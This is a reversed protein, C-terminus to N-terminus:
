KEWMNYAAREEPDAARVKPDSDLYAYRRAYGANNRVAAQYESKAKYAKGTEFYARALSIRLRSNDPSLNVAKEYMTSAERFKKQLMYVNGLNAFAPARMPQAIAAKSFYSLADELKGFKANLVGLSNLAQYNNKDADLEVLLRKAQDDFGVTKLQDMDLAYLMNIRDRGPVSVSSGSGIDAPPFKAWSTATELAEFSGRMGKYRNVSQAGEKWAALFSKGSMTVEVPVWVTGNMTHVLSRDATVDTYSNEPVETDFMMFIHGPTTVVATKIGISELMTSFLVTLDDCDGAKKRLTERAFMVYDLSEAGLKGFGTNPDTAYSIGAAGMTDFLILAEQVKKNFGPLMKQKYLSLANRAFGSTVEERPTIFSGIHATNNWTITNRSHVTANKTEIYSYTGKASTYYARMKVPLERTDSMELIAKDIMLPLEVEVSQGPALTKLTQSKTPGSDIENIATDVRVEMLTEKGANTVTVVGIGDAGYSMYRAGFIPKLRIGSLQVLSEKRDLINRGTFVSLRMMASGSFQTTYLMEDSLESVGYSAGFRLSIFDFPSIMVGATAIGFPKTSSSAVGSQDFTFRMHSAGGQISVFPEFWRTFMFAFGPGAALNYQSMTSNPSAQMTFSAFNATGELFFGGWGPYYLITAGFGMGPDFTDAYFGSPMMYGGTLGAIFGKNLDEANLPTILAAAALIITAIRTHIM